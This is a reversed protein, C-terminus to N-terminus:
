IGMQLVRSRREGASAAFAASAALLGAAPRPRPQARRRREKPLATDPPSRHFHPHTRGM